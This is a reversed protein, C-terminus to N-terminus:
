RQACRSVPASYFDSRAMRPDTDHVRSGCCVSSGSSCPHLSPAPVSKWRTRQSCNQDQRSATTAQCLSSGATQVFRKRHAAPFCGPTIVSRTAGCQSGGSIFFDEVGEDAQSAFLSKCQLTNPNWLCRKSARKREAALPFARGFEASWLFKFLNLSGAGTKLCTVTKSFSFLIIRPTVRLVIGADVLAYM